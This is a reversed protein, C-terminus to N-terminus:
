TGLRGEKELVDLAEECAETIYHNLKLRGTYLGLIIAESHKEYLVDELLLHKKRNDHLYKLTRLSVDNIDVKNLILNHVEDFVLQDLRIRENLEFFNIKLYELWEKTQALAQQFYEDNDLDGNLNSNNMSSLRHTLYRVATNCQVTAIFIIVGQADGM